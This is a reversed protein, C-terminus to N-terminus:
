SKSPIQEFYQNNRVGAYDFMNLRTAEDYKNANANAANKFSHTCERLNTAVVDSKAPM